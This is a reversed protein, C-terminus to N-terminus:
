GIPSSFLPSSVQAGCLLYVAIVKSLIIDNLLFSDWKKLVCGTDEFSFASQPIFYAVAVDRPFTM